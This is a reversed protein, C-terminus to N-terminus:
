LIETESFIQCKKRRKFKISHNCTLHYRPEHEGSCAYSEGRGEGSGLTNKTM